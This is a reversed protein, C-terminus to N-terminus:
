GYPGKVKKLGWVTLSLPWPLIAAQRLAEANIPEWFIGLYLPWLPHPNLGSLAGFALAALLGGLAGAGISLENLITQAYDKHHPRAIRWLTRRCVNLFNKGALALLIVLILGGGITRLYLFRDSPMKIILYLWPELEIVFLFALFATLSFYKQSILTRLFIGVGLSYFFLEM